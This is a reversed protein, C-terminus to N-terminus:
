KYYLFPYEVVSATFFFGLAKGEPKINSRVNSPTGMFPNSGSSNRIDQIFRRYENEISYLYLTIKDFEQINEDPKRTDLTYIGVPFDVGGFLIEMEIGNFYLGNFGALRAISFETLTDTILVENIAVKALYNMENDAITQFYPCIKLRHEREKGNFTQPLIKASDIREPIPRITSEASFHKEVGDKDLLSVSLQYTRGIEGAIVEITEYIGAHEPNEAFEITNEGDFVSVTANSIMEPAGPKYFDTSRSLIITHKKKETTISGYIGIMPDGSELDITVEDMCACLGLLLVTYLIIKQM